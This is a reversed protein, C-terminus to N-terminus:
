PKDTEITMALQNLFALTGRPIKGPAGERERM